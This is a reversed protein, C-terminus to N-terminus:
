INLNGFNNYSRMQKRIKQKPLKFKSFKTMTEFKSIRTELKKRMEGIFLCPQSRVLVRFRERRLIM